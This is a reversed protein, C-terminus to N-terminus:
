DSQQFTDGSGVWQETKAVIDITAALWNIAPIDKVGHCGAYYRIQKNKTSSKLRIILSPNDTWLETCGDEKSAYSDQLTMFPVREFAGSLFKVADSSIKSHRMGVEAVYRIGKYDVSGDGHVTVTYIPCAGFCATRQLEIEDFAPKAAEQAQAGSSILLMLFIASHLLWTRM